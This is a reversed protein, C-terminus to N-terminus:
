ESKVPVLEALARRGEKWGLGASCWLHEGALWWPGICGAEGTLDTLACEALKRGDTPDLWLLVPVLLKRDAPVFTLVLISDNSCAAFDGQQWWVIEGTEVSLAVLGGVERVLVTDGIVAALGTVDPSSQQWLTRGTEANLCRVAKVGPQAVFIRDNHAVPPSEYFDRPRLDAPQPLWLPRDLWEVDFVPSISATVGGVTLVISGEGRTWAAPPKGDWVDRLRFLLKQEQVAGTEPSLAAALIQLTEDETRDVLLVLLRDHWPLPDTLVHLGPRQRWVIRGDSAHLRVLEVGAKTLRRVFLAEGAAAVAMPQNPFDHAEGQEGGLSVSWLPQPNGAHYASIQVRNSVWSRLGDVTVAFQRGFPDVDRLDFKGAHQGPSGDFQQRVVARYTGPSPLEPTVPANWPIQIGTARERRIGDVLSSFEAADLTRSGLPVDAAPNPQPYFPAVEGRLAALLELRALASTRFTEFPLRSARAFWDEAAFLQGAALQQDGLWLLAEGAVETGAFQLAALRIALADGAEVAQRMRFRGADSHEQRLQRAFDPYRQLMDALLVPVSVALGPQAAVPLLGDAADSRLSLAVRCADAFQGAELASSLEAAFNYAEKNVLPQYPHRWLAPILTASDADGREASAISAAWRALREVTEGPERLRADPRPELRHFRWRRSCDLTRIPWGDDAAYCEQLMERRALDDWAERARSRTWVPARLYASRIRETAAPRKRTLEADGVRLYLGHLRRAPADDWWDVLLASESLVADWDRDALEIGGPLVQELLELRLDRNPMNPLAALAAAPLWAELKTDAPRSEELAKLWRPRDVAGTWDVARAAALLGPDILGSLGDLERVQLSRWGLTRPQPGPLGILGITRVSGRLDRLPNEVVHGWHQGDDSILISALGAGGVLRIWSGAAVAPTAFHDRDYEADERREGPRLFGCTLRQNRRNKFFALTAIPKGAADGLYVGTGPSATELQVVIDFFGARPLERWCTTERDNRSTTWHTIDPVPHEWAPVVDAATQWPWASASSDAWLRSPSRIAPLTLPSAKHLSIGRLRFHGEFYIEDPADPTLVSLLVLDGRSLILRGDQWRLDFTGPADRFFAANDTTLLAEYDAPRPVVTERGTRFAAWHHPDRKTYFRLTRGVPGKWCHISLDEIDFATLRLVTSATWPAKLRALGQMRTISRNGIQEGFLQWREGEVEALWRRTQSETLGSHGIEDYDGPGTEAALDDPPAEPLLSAAWPEPEPEPVQVVLPAHNEPLMASAAPQPQLAPAVAPEAAPLTETAPHERQPEIPEQPAQEALQWGPQHLIRFGFAGILAALLCLGILIWWPSSRKKASASARQLVTDVSVPTPGLGTALQTELELHAQLADRIEASETWRRRLFALEDAPWEDATREEILRILEQDTLM